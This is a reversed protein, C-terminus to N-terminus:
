EFRLAVMPHVRTARRAPIWCAVLAAGLLLLVVAAFTLPDAPRVGYLLAAVFRVLALAGAVGLAAGAIVVTMGQRLIMRLVDSRQAGLAMRVGIEHTRQATAQSVVGYIGVAALLLALAAFGGLSAMTFRRQALSRALLEDMTATIYFPQEPNVQWIASQI